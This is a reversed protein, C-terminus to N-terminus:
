QTHKYEELSVTWYHRTPPSMQLSMQLKCKNVLSSRVAVSTSFCACGNDNSLTHNLFVSMEIPLPDGHITRSKIVHNVRYWRCGFFPIWDFRHIPTSPIETQAEGLWDSTRQRVSNKGCEIQVNTRFTGSGTRRPSVDSVSFLCVWYTNTHNWNQIVLFIRCLVNSVVTQCVFAAM